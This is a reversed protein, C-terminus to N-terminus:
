YLTGRDDALAADIDAETIEVKAGLGSTVRQPTQAPRVPGSEPVAEPLAPPADVPEAPTDAENRVARRANQSMREARDDGSDGGNEPPVDTMEEAMHLGGLVDAFLDRLAFSRARMQLMRKPNTKWPGGKGWLGATKADGVSFETRVEDSNLRKAVCVAKFTDGGERGDFSETFRELQGSARVLGIMADGWLTPRGNIVAIRQLSQMPRLGVELGHAMAVFIKETTDLNSPALGSKKVASACRWLEDFNTPNLGRATMAVSAPPSQPVALDKQESM